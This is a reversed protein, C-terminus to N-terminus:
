LQQQQQQDHVQTVVAATYGLAQVELLLDLAESYLQFFEEETPGEEQTIYCCSSSM